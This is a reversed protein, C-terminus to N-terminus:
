VLQVANRDGVAVVGVGRVPPGDVPGAHVDADGLGEVELRMLVALLWNVTGPRGTGVGTM